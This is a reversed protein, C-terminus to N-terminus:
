ARGARRLHRAATEPLVDNIFAGAGSESAALYKLKNEARRPTFIRVSLHALEADPGAPAQQLHAVYPAPADFLHDFRRLVDRYLVMLEAREDPQLDPLGTAHRHPYIHVEYPWRAAEPVFAVFRDTRAVVREAASEAAVVACFLCGGREARYSRAMDLARAVRAPVFPYAYIQGHPHQLTAGIEDGRNEFVFVYEVGPLEALKRTRHTWARALTELRREPLHSFSSGHDDTFCVVECRGGAPPGGLSPFRNEFTVVHYGSAPIEGHRGPASPCLPCEDRGPLHTRSQRHAAMTVWDGSIPDYRVESRMDRAPLVRQDPASRDHGPGDDFYILERGDALPVATSHADLVDDGTGPATM